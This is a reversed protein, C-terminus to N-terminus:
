VRVRGLIRTMSWSFFTWATRRYRPVSRDTSLARSGSTGGRQAVVAVVSVVTVSLQVSFIM